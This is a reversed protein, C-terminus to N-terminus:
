KSVISNGDDLTKETLVWKCSVADQGDDNVWDYVNHENLNQMENRKAKIIREDDELYDVLVTALVAETEIQRWWEINDWNVSSDKDDKANRINIWNVYKSTKRVQKSLMTAQGRQGNELKYEFMM